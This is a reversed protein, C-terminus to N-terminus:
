RLTCTYRSSTISLNVSTVIISYYPQLANQLPFMQVERWRSSTIDVTNWNPLIRKLLLRFIMSDDHKERTIKKLNLNTQKFQLKTKLINRARFRNFTGECRERKM